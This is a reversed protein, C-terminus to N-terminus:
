KTPWQREPTWPIVRQRKHDYDEARAIRAVQAQPIADEISFGKSEYLEVVLKWWLPLLTDEGADEIEGLAARAKVSGIGKCGKYGDTTDGILTQYMWYWDAKAESISELKPTGFKPIHYLLNDSGKQKRRPITRLDKDITVIIKRGKIVKNNTALIGLVDDGELRDKRYSEFHEDLATEMYDHLVPRTSADRTHKYTPLQDLRWNNARDADSFCLIVRDAELDSKLDNVYQLMNDVAWDKPPAIKDYEGDGEWDIEKQGRAAFQYAPVDADLLITTKM